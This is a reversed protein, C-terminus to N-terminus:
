GKWATPGDRVIVEIIANMPSETASKENSVSLRETIKIVKKSVMKRPNYLVTKYPFDIYPGGQLTQVTREKLGRPELRIV